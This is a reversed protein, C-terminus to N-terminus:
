PMGEKRIMIESYKMMYVGTEYAGVTKRNAHGSLNNLIMTMHDVGCEYAHPYGGGFRPNVDVIFYKGNSELLDIDLEGRYGATKVFRGILDFLKEDQFSVAKDTEGARMLLKKRTFISIVEGTILDVYVDAGIEQGKLFHQIMMPIKKQNTHSFFFEAASMDDARATAVSASGRCPKIYVPFNVQGSAVAKRFATLDDWSDVTDFGHELCFRYMQMKDLSMECLNYSSGVVTTGVAKFLAENQALVSLEPDILSLVGDIKEERCINLVKDMYGPSNIKPIIYYRDAEYLAPSIPYMDAAIVTGHGAVAKKFYCIIKNRTGASLILLNM